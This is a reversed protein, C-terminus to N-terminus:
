ARNRPILGLVDVLYAVSIALLAREGFHVVLLCKHHARAATEMSHQGAVLWSCLCQQSSKTRTLVHNRVLSTVGPPCSTWRCGRWRHVWPQLAAARSCRPGSGARALQGEQCAASLLVPWSPLLLPALSPPCWQNPRGRRRWLGSGGEPKFSHQPQFPWM